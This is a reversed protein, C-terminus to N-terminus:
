RRMEPQRATRAAEGFHQVMIPQGTQLRSAASAASPVPTGVFSSCMLTSSFLPTIRTIRV